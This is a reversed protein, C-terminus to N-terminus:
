TNDPMSPGIQRCGHHRPPQDSFAILSTYLVEIRAIDNDRAEKGSVYCVEWDAKGCGLQSSSSDTASYSPAAEGTKMAVLRADPQFMKYVGIASSASTLSLEIKCWRMIMERSYRKCGDRLKSVDNAVRDQVM